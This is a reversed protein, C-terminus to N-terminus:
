HAYRVKVMKPPSYVYKRLKETDCLYEKFHEWKEDMRYPGKIDFSNEEFEKIIVEITGYCGDCFTSDGPILAGDQKENRNQANAIFKTSIYSIYLCALGVVVIHEFFPYRFM